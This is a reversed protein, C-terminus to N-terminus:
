PADVFVLDFLEDQFDINTADRPVIQISRETEYKITVDTNLENQKNPKGLLFHIRSTLLQFRSGPLDSAYIQIGPNNHFKSILQITKNGPSACLDIVKGRGNAITPVLRSTIIAGLDQILIKGQNFEGLHQIPRGKGVVFTNEVHSVATLNIKQKIDELTSEDRLQNIWIYKPAPLNFWKGLQKLEDISYYEKLKDYLILPLSYTISWRERKSAISKITPRLKIEKMQNFYALVKRKQKNSSFPFATLESLIKESSKKHWMTWYTVLDILAIIQKNPLINLTQRIYEITIKYKQLEFINRHVNGWFRTNRAKYRKREKSIAARFSFNKSEFISKNLIKVTMRTESYSTQNGTPM